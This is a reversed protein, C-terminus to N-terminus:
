PIPERSFTLIFRLYTPGKEKRFKRVELAAQRFINTTGTLLLTFQINFQSYHSTKVTFFTSCTLCGFLLFFNAWTRVEGMTEIFHYDLFITFFPYLRAQSRHNENTFVLVLIKVM